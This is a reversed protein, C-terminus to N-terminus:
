EDIIGIISFTFSGTGVIDWRARWQKGLIHRVTDAALVASTEFIAQPEPIIIKGIFRKVGGNGLVQTFHIVDVFNSEIQVQVFVDLTDGALTAAATVDLEFTGVNEIGGSGAATGISTATEVGTHLSVRQTGM